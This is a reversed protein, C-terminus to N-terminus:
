GGSKMRISKFKIIKYKIVVFFIIYSIFFLGALFLLEIISTPNLVLFLLIYTLCSFLFLKTSLVPSHVVLRLALFSAITFFFAVSATAFLTSISIKFSTGVQMIILAVLFVCIASFTAMIILPREIRIEKKHESKLDKSLILIGISGFLASAVSSYLKQLIAYQGLSVRDFYGCLILELQLFLPFSVCLIMFHLISQWSSIKKPTMSLVSFLKLWNASILFGLFGIIVSFLYLTTWSYDTLVRNTQLTVLAAFFLPQILPLSIALNYREDQVHDALFFGSCQMLFAALMCFFSSPPKNTIIGFTIILCVCIFSTIAYKLLAQAKGQSIVFLSFPAISSGVVFLYLGGLYNARIFLELQYFGFMSPILVFSYFNLASAIVSGLGMM